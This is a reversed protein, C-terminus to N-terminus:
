LVYSNIVNSYVLLPDAGVAAAKFAYQKGSELNNIIANTKTSVLVTWTSNETVPTPTYAFKYVDAGTVPKVKAKVANSYVPELKFNEPAPLV